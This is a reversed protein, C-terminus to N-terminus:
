RNGYRTLTMEVESHYEQVAIFPDATDVFARVSKGHHRCENEKEIFAFRYVKWTPVNDDVNPVQM